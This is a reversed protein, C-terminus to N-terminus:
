TQMHLQEYRDVREGVIMKGGMDEGVCLTMRRDKRNRWRTLEDRKREEIM